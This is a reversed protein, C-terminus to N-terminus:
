SLIISNYTFLQPVIFLRSFKYYQEQEEREMEM